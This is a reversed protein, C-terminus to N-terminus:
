KYVIIVFDNRQSFPANSFAENASQGSLPLQQPMWPREKPKLQQFSAPQSGEWGLTGSSWIQWILILSGFFFFVYTAEGKWFSSVKWLRGLYRPVGSGPAEPSFICGSHLLVTSTMTASVDCDSSLLLWISYTKHAAFNLEANWFLKLLLETLFFILAANWLVIHGWCYVKLGCFLTFSISHHQKHFSGLFSHSTNM